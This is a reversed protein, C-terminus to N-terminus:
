RIVQEKPTSKRENLVTRYISLSENAATLSDSANKNEATLAAQEQELLLLHLQLVAEDALVFAQETQRKDNQTEAATILSDTAVPVELDIAKAIAQLTKAETITSDVVGARQSACSILSIACIAPFLIKKDQV